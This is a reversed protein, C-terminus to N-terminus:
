KANRIKIKIKWKQKEKSERKWKRGVNGAKMKEGLKRFRNQMEREIGVGKRNWKQRGNGSEM